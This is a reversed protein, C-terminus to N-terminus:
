VFTKVGADTQATICYNAKPLGFVRSRFTYWGGGYHLAIVNDGAHVYPTIDFQPVYVRHASFVEGQADCSPEFDSSLPLFTDPNICKGNIYCKFFGLGLVSLSVSQVQDVTFHGRLISFSTTSRESKGVWKADKFFFEQKM